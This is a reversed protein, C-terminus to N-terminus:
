ITPRNHLAVYQLTKHLAPLVRGPHADAMWLKSTVYLDDRSVVTGARVAEAVADGLSAETNYV